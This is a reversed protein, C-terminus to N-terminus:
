CVLQVHACCQVCKPAIAYNYTPKPCKKCSQPKIKPGGILQAAFRQTHMAGFIRLVYIPVPDNGKYSLDCEQKMLDMLTTDTTLPQHIFPESDIPANKGADVKRKSFCVMAAQQWSQHYHNASWCAFGPRRCVM